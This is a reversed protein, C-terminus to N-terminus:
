HTVILRRTDVISITNTLRVIYMGNALNATNFTYLVTGKPIGDNYVLAGVQNYVEIQVRDKLPDTFLMNTITNTPNPYLVLQLGNGGEIEDVDITGGDAFTSAVQYVEFPTVDNQLFVVAEIMSQDHFAAVSGSVIFSTDSTPASSAATDWDNTFAIGAHSPLFNRVVGKHITENNTGPSTLVSNPIEKEVLVVRATLKQGIVSDLAIIDVFVTINNNSVPSASIDLDFKADALMLRIVDEENFHTTTHNKHEWGNLISYPVLNQSYFTARAEYGTPYDLYMQDKSPIDSHYQLDILDVLFSDVITNLGTKNTNPNLSAGSINVTASTLDNANTFHELLVTQTREGIWIDDVAFGDGPSGSGNGGLSFRFRVLSDGALSDLEHRADVWGTFKGSWGEVSQGQFNGLTDVYGGATIAGSNYWSIQDNLVGIKKWGNITDIRAYEFVVGDAPDIIDSWIKMKIMPRKLESFNFCPGKLISQETADYQSSDGTIYVYDQGVKQITNISDPVGREWTFVASTDMGPLKEPLWGGHFIEFQEYYPNDATPTIYPRIIVDKDISDTCGFSTSITYKVNYVSDISYEHSPHKTPGDLTTDVPSGDGYDWIYITTGAPVIYPTIGENIFQVPQGSIFCDNTWSFDPIPENGFELSKIITTDCGTTLQVYLEVDYFGPTTYLYAVSDLYDRVTDTIVTQDFDWDYVAIVDSGSRFTTLDAFRISDTICFGSISFDPVPLANVRMIASTDDTCGATNPRTATYIIEVDGPDLFWDSPSLSNGQPVTDVGVRGAEFNGAPTGFLPITTSFDACTDSPIYSTIIVDPLGNIEIISEITDRCFTIPFQSIYKVTLTIDNNDGEAM